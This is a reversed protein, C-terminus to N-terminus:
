AGGKKERSSGIGSFEGQRDAEVVDAWDGRTRIPNNCSTERPARLGPGLAGKLASGSGRGGGSARSGGPKTEAESREGQFGGRVGAWKRGLGGQVKFAGKGMIRLKKGEDVV